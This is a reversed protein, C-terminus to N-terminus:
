FILIVCFSFVAFLVVGAASRAPGKEQTLAYIQFLGAHFLAVGLAALPLYAWDLPLAPVERGAAAASLTLLPLAPWGLPLLYATTRYLAILLGPGGIAKAMLWAVLTIGAHVALVILLGSLLNGGLLISDPIEAVPIDQLTGGIARQFLATLSGYLLGTSILAAATWLSARPSECAHRFPEVRLLFLDVILM